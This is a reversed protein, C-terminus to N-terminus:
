DAPAMEAGLARLKGEFNEYGREVFPRGSVLSEGGASLAAIVLAAGDRINGASVSAGRLGEVGRIVAHRSDRLEINAGMKALQEAYQLRRDFVTEHITSTGEAMALVAAVPPQLDTSFLPFPNTVVDVGRPRRACRTVIGGGEAVIEIGAEQLKDATQGLEGPGIDLIRVEGRTAAAACMFTGGELRDSNVRHAVGQLSRVGKVTLRTTGIGSVRAGARNLFECFRVVDPEYSADEIVSEGHALSAAMLATFTAGPNRHRPDLAVMAGRLRQCRLEIASEDATEEAGFARLVSLIHTLPRSGLDCGGPMGLQARGLRLALPGLLYHSARMRRVLEDPPHHTTVGTNGIRVTDAQEAEVELGVAKLLDIMTAVDAIRPVNHLVTEGDLLLTAALTPLSGNKSGSPTVSGRLPRGGVIRWAEATM